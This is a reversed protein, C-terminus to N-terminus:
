HIKIKWAYCFTHKGKKSNSHMFLHISTRTSRRHMLLSFQDEMCLRLQVRKSRRNMYTYSINAMQMCMLDTLTLM